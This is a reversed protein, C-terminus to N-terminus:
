MFTIATTGAEYFYCANSGFDAGQAYESGM